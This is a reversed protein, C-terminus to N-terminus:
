HVPAATAWSWSKAAREGLLVAIQKELHDATYIYYDREPQHRVYGLAKGRPTITVQSVSGPKLEESVLAHGTEHVAIRWM